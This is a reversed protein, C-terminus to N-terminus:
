RDIRELNQFDKYNSDSIDSEVEPLQVAHTVRQFSGVDWFFETLFDRKQDIDSKDDIKILSDMNVQNVFQNDQITKQEFLVDKSSDLVEYPFIKYLGVYVGFFFIIAFSIIILSLIPKKV